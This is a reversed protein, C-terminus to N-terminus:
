ALAGITAVVGAPTPSAFLQRLTLETDLESRIRGVLRTAPLSYGGLVFFDDDPAVDDIRLVEAFLECVRDQVSTGAAPAPGTPGPAAAALRARDLKGNATLPLTDVVATAAPVMYAPLAAAAAALVAGPLAATDAGRLGVVHAVLWQDGDDGTQVTVGCSRVGPVGAVVAEIEGLEVRYGRLKVQDDVRGAFHLEGGATWRALDGSRYMRTGPPGFPDAVYRAATLAPRGWYGRAVGAGAAYLEGVGGPPVLRLDRDLVYLRTNDMPRGIPVAGSPLDDGPRFWWQMCGVATETHGYENLVRVGPHAALWEWLAEGFLEEGGVVLDGGAACVDTIQGLVALHSPTVKLLTCVGREGSAAAEAISAVWVQGGVTLPLLLATISLDFGLPSHLLATGAAGPLERATWVLYDTLAAHSIVVGKPRGTSGSTYVMYASGTANLAVPEFSAPLDAGPEPGDVTIVPTGSEEAPGRLGAVTIVCLPASDELMYRTREAPYEADLAVFMGGSKLVALVAVVWWSSRPLLLAVRDEPGVGRARLRAALRSSLADLERYTLTADAARVAIADGALLVRERFRDIVSAPAAPRDPGHGWALLEREQGTAAGPGPGPAPRQRPGADLPRLDTWTRELHAVCDPRAAPGHVVRWGAPEATAAPWLSRQEGGNALVVFTGNEDEFPNTAALRDVDVEPTPDPM